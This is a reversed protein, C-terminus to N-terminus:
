IYSFLLYNRKVIKMIQLNDLRFNNKFGTWSCVASLKNSFLRSLVRKM